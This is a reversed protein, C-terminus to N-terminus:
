RIPGFFRGLRMTWPWRWIEWPHAEPEVSIFRIVARGVLNDLPVFGLGMRSDASNDRNDGMAFFMGAPVEYADTDDQPLSDEAERTPEGLIEHQVGNPMTERYRYRTTEFARNYREDWERETFDDIRRRKCPQGNITLLGHVMQIRDGPLGVIRKIYDEGTHPNVFVAVDGRKPDAAFIRHRLVSDLFPFSYPGYGYALKSVFVYDGSLLTPTMSGSPIDFPEFVAFRFSIFAVILVIWAGINLMAGLSRRPVDSPAIAQPEAPITV